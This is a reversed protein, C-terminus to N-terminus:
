LLSFDLLSFVGVISSGKKKKWLLMEREAKEWWFVTLQRYLASHREKGAAFISAAKGSIPVQIVILVLAFCSSM